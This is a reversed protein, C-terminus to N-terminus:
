DKEGERSVSNGSFRNLLATIGMIIGMVLFIGAMGFLMIKLGDIIM